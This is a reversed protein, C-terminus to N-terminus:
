DWPSGGTLNVVVGTAAGARDSAYFAATEAVEELSPLRKLFPSAKARGDLLDELPIGARDAMPRFIDAVHSRDMTEPIADPRLCVVRIGHGGIEAALIRSFSEVASCTTGYGLFGPVTVKSGPTSITLIVGAGQRVMVEGMSKAIVFLARTYARLPREFAELSLDGLPVGQVHIFGVANVAVDIRGVREVVARAHARVAAEDLVDVVDTDASGGAQRIAAATAELTEATRGALVVRAGERAFTRAMAGGIAGGGGYVVATRDKLLM